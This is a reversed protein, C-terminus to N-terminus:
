SSKQIKKLKKLTERFDRIFRASPNRKHHKLLTLYPYNYGMFLAFQRRSCIKEQGLFLNDLEEVM